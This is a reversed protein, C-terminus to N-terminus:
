PEITETTELQVRGLGRNLFQDSTVRFTWGKAECLKNFKEMQKFRLSFSVVTTGKGKITVDLADIGHGVLAAAVSQLDVINM